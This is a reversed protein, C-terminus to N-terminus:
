DLSFEVNAPTDGSSADKLDTDFVREPTNGALDELDPGAVLDYNGSEWPQSPYISWVSEGEGAEIRDLGVKKGTLLISINRKVLAHDVPEPLHVVLPQSTGALPLELVWSDPRPRVYDEPLTRFSHRIEQGLPIGDASRLTKDLVLTYEKGPLLVPGLQERLNVGRKVRGPHIWLTLRKADATWLELRRWPAHVRQGNADEIHIQDFLDQGERMSRDFYLYFKLLNAPLKESTPYIAELMPPPSDKRPVTYKAQGLEKGAKDLLIALYTNGASLPFSPELVLASEQRTVKAFMAPGLSDPEQGVLHLTIASGEPAGEARISVKWADGGPVTGFALSASALLAALSM